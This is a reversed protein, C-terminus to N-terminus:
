RRMFLFTTLKFQRELLEGSTALTRLKLQVFDCNQSEVREWWVSGERWGAWMACYAHGECREAVRVVADQGVCCQAHKM